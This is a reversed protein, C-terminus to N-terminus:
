GAAKVFSAFESYCLIDVNSKLFKKDENVNIFIVTVAVLAAALIVTLATHFYHKKM